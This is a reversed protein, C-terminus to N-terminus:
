RIAVDELHLFSKRLVRLRVHSARVSPFKATWTDFPIDKRAVEVWRVDDDSVEVALPVAREGCCDLRNRVEVRRVWKPGGLDFEVWPFAEEQTHFFFRAAAGGCGPHGPDCSAFTSSARWPRGAALNPGRTAVEWRWYLFGGLVLAIAAIAAALGYARRKRRQAEREPAERIALLEVAFSRLEEQEARGQELPLSADDLPGRLLIGQLLAYEEEGGAAEVAVTSPARQLVTDFASIMEM